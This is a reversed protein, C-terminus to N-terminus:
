SINSFLNDKAIITNHYLLPLILLIFLLSNCFIKDNIINVSPAIIAAAARSHKKIGLVIRSPSYSTNGDNNM